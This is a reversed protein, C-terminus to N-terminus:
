GNFRNATFTAGQPDRLVTIRSPGADYPAAVVTAGLREARAAVADADDVSFTVSWHPTGGEESLAQMWAVADTFGPPAGTEQHRRRVGPDITELFDGYGPRRWMTFSAGEFELPETEWGFVSGYFVASGEFDATNLENFNFTGPENVAQAGILGAPEYVGFEAGTPDACAVVRAVGPTEYAGRLVKGGAATLKAATEAASDVRIYTNWAVPADPILSGIGAVDAGGLQGVLYGPSREEVKWGFLGEYFRAAAPLDPASVDVWCPVGAPYDPRLLREM